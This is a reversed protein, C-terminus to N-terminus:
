LEGAQLRRNAATAGGDAREKEPACANQALRLCQLLGLGKLLGLLSLLVSQRIRQRARLLMQIGEFLLQSPLALARAITM